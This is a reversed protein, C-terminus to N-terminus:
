FRNTQQQQDNKKYVGDCDFVNRWDYKSLRNRQITTITRWTEITCLCFERSWKSHAFYIWHFSHNKGNQSFVSTTKSKKNETIFLLFNKLIDFYIPCHLFAIFIHQFDINTNQVMNPNDDAFLASYESSDGDDMRISCHWSPHMLFTFTSIFRASDRSYRTYVDILM